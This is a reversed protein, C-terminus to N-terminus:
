LDVGGVSTAQMGRRAFEICRVCNGSTTLRFGCDPCIRAHLLTEESYHDGPRFGYPREPESEWVQPASSPAAAYTRAGAAATTEAQPPAQHSHGQRAAAAHTVAREVGSAAAAESETLRRPTAPAPEDVAPAEAAATQALAATKAAAPAEQGERTGPTVANTPLAQEIAVEPEQGTTTRAMLGLSETTLPVQKVETPPTAPPTWKAQQVAERLEPRAEIREMLRAADASTGPVSVVNNLADVLQTRAPETESLKTLLSAFERSNTNDAAVNHFFKVGQPTQSVRNLVTAVDRSGVESSAIRNLSDLVQRAGDRSTTARAMVRGLAETGSTDFSLNKLTQGTSETGAGTGTMRYMLRSVARGGGEIDVLNSLGDAVSRSGSVWHTAREFSHAVLKSNGRDGEKPMTLTDLLEGMGRAAIPDRTAHDFLAGLARAGQGDQAMAHFSKALTDTGGPADTMLLLTGVTRAPHAEAVNAMVQSFASASEPRSTAQQMIDMLRQPGDKGSVVAEFADGVRLAGDRQGTIQAMSRFDEITAKRGDLNQFTQGLMKEIDQPSIRPPAVRAADEAPPVAPQQQQQLLRMEPTDMSFPTTAAPLGSGPARNESLHTMIKQLAVQPDGASEQLLRMLAPDAQMLALDGKLMESVTKMLSPDIVDRLGGMNLMGSADIAAPQGTVPNAIVDASSVTYPNRVTATYDYSSYTTPASYTPQASPTSPAPPPSTTTSPTGASAPPITSPASEQAQVPPAAQTSPAPAGDNPNKIPQIGTTGELTEIGPQDPRAQTTTAPPNHPDRGVSPQHGMLIGSDRLRSMMATEFESASIRDRYNRDTEDLRRAPTTESEKPPFLRDLVKPDATRVFEENTKLRNNKEADLLAAMRPDVRSLEAQGAGGREFLSKYSAYYEGPNELAHEARHKADAESWGVEQYARALAGETQARKDPTATADKFSGVVETGFGLNRGDTGKESLIKDAHAHAMEHHLIESLRPTSENLIDTTLLMKNSQTDYIAPHGHETMEKYLSTGRAADIEDNLRSLFSPLRAGGDTVEQTAEKLRAPDALVVGDLQEISERPLTRLSDVTGARLKDLEAPNCSDYEVPVKLAAMMKDRDDASMERPQQSVYNAAFRRDQEPLGEYWKQYEAQQDNPAGPVPPMKEPPKPQEPLVSCVALNERESRTQDTTPTAPPQAAANKQGSSPAQAESEGGPKFVDAVFRFASSVFGLPGGESKESEGAAKDTQGPTRDSGQETGAGPDTVKAPEEVRAVRAEDQRSAAADEVKKLHKGEDSEEDGLIARALDAGRGDDEAIDHSRDFGDRGWDHRRRAPAEAPEADRERVKGRASAERSSSSADDRKEAVSEKSSTTSETRRPAPATVSKVPESRKSSEGSDRV